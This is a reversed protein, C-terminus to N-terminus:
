GKKNRGAWADLVENNFHEALLEYVGPITFLYSVGAKHATELLLLDFEENTMADYKGM